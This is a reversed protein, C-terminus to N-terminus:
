KQFLQIFDDTKKLGYGASKAIKALEQHQFPLSETLVFKPNNAQKLHSIQGFLQRYLELGDSGGFIALKPEMMAADNIHYNDPVYPLNALIASRQYRTASLKQLLDGHILDATIKYKELNKRAVKLCEPDIDILDVTSGPIELAATIGLAGSGTGVDVIHPQKLPLEKLLDIMTESEPRPELVFENIVFERGYFESKGRVYALPTHKRRKDIQNALKSQQKGTLKTEPHALLW